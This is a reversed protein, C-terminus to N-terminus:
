ESWDRAKLFCRWWENSFVDDVDHKPFCPIGATWHILNAEDNEGHEDVLWNWEMPLEGIRDDEIFKFQLVKLPMVKRLWDPDVIRWASHACNMLMVSAWQKRPYDRNDCEMATGLYKRQYSTKYDHKVVQVAKWPDKLAFLEFPDARFIMDAGDVFCAWGQYGMLYPVLFRRLTFANSGEPFNPLAKATLPTVQVPASAHQIVSAMFATTGAFERDDHGFFLRMDNGM